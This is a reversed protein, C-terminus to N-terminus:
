RSFKEGINTILSISILSITIPVLIKCTANQTNISVGNDEIEFNLFKFTIFNICLLIIAFILRTNDKM